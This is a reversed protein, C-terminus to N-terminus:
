AQRLTVWCKETEQTCWKCARIYCMLRFVEDVKVQTLGEWALLWLCHVTGCLWTLTPAKQLDLPRGAIWILIVSIRSSQNIMARWGRNCYISSSRIRSVVAFCTTARAFQNRLQQSMGIEYTVHITHFDCVCVCVCVCVPRSASHLSKGDDISERDLTRAIYSRQQVAFCWVQCLLLCLSLVNWVHAYYQILLANYKCAAWLHM